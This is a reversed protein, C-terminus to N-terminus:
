GGDDPVINQSVKWDESWWRMLSGETTISVSKFHSLWTLALTKKAM